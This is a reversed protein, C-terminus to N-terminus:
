IIAILFPYSYFFVIVLAYLSLVFLFLSILKIGNRERKKKQFFAEMERRCAFFFDSCSFREASPANRPRSHKAGNKQNALFQITEGIYTQSKLSLNRAEAIM